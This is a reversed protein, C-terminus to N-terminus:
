FVWGATFTETPRSVYLWIAANIIMVLYCSNRKSSRLNAPPGTSNLEAYRRATSSNWKLTSEPLHVVKASVRAYYIVWAINICLQLFLLRGSSFDPAGDGRWPFNYTLITAGFSVAMALFFLLHLGM